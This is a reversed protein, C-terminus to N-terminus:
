SPLHPPPLTGQPLITVEFIKGRRVRRIVFELGNRSLRQGTKPNENTEQLLWDSLTGSYPLLNEVRKSLDRWHVGGGVMWTGGALPHIMKPLRDFEDEIDGLMEEIIDELTV